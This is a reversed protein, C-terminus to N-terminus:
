VFFSFASAQHARAELVGQLRKGFEGLDSSM